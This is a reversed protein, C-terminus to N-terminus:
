LEIGGPSVSEMQKHPSDPYLNRKPFPRSEGYLAQSLMEFGIRVEEETQFYDNYRIEWACRELEADLLHHQREHRELADAAHNLGELLLLTSREPSPGQPNATPSAQQSALTM